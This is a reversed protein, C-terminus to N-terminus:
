CGTNATKPLGIGGFHRPTFRTNSLATGLFDTMTPYTYFIRAKTYGLDIRHIFQMLWAKLDRINGAEQLKNFQDRWAALIVPIAEPTIEVQAAALQITLREIEAKCQTKEREREQLKDQAAQSGTREITKLLRQIVISLDELRRQEAKIQREIADTSDLQKKTEEIAEALYDPTLVHSLVAEIIKAEAKEAGIRRSSCSQYGRRNKQGCLYHRWPTKKHGPSHTMMAGCELCYTFGSLVTPYGVRRPHNLQGKKRRLPHADTIKQVAEWIEFTTLPTHHDPIEFIGKGYSGLYSKNKFFSHWSNASTYLKGKTAETIEKYSKGEARLQWALKVYEALVPDPEWKSVMRPTGDRKEGRPMQIAVYGRPPTGPAFGESVLAKLGRKVDRSTQRRKEENALDLVTEVIRGAFDNEPISDTLSHIIIGRKRLTSKYYNSDISDRAFRAFNWILIGQPRISGDESQDIMAMFEDRGQVSGGSRAVDRFIKILQLNYRRCFAIIEKEQQGVSQDQSPGGSDRLYAWVRAGAPLGPPPPSYQESM